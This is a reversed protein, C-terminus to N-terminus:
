TMPQEKIAKRVAERFGAIIQQIRQPKLGNERGIESCTYGEMYMKIFRRNRESAAATAKQVAQELHLANLDESLNGGEIADKLM